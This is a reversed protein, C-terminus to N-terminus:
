QNYGRSFGEKFTEWASVPNMAIDAAVAGAVWIYWVFGGDIGRIEKADMELVGYNELNKM